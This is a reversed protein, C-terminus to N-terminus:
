YISTHNVTPHFWFAACLQYLSCFCKTWLPLFLLLPEASIRSSFIWILSTTTLCNIEDSFLCFSFKLFFLSPEPSRYVAQTQRPNLEVSSLCFSFRLLFPLSKLLGSHPNTQPKARWLVPPLFVEFLFATIWTVSVLSTNTPPNARSFILLILVQLFPSGQANQLCVSM